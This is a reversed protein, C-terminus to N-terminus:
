TCYKYKIVRKAFRKGGDAVVMLPLLKGVKGTLLVFMEALVLLSM